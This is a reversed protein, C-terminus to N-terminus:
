SSFNMQEFQDSNCINLLTMKTLRALSYKLIHLYSTLIKVYPTKLLKHDSGTM